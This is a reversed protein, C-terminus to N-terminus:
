WGLVEAPQRLNYFATGAVHDRFKLVFYSQGDEFRLELEFPYSGAEIDTDGPPILKPCADDGALPELYLARHGDRRWRLPLQRIVYPAYERRLVGTGGNEEGELTLTEESFKATWVGVLGQQHERFLRMLDHPALEFDNSSSLKDAKEQGSEDRFKIMFTASRNRGRGENFESGRWYGLLQSWPVYVCTDLRFIDHTRAALAERDLILGCTGGGGRRQRHLELSRPIGRGLKYLFVVMPISGLLAWAGIRWSWPGTAAALCLLFFVPVCGLDSFPMKQLVVTREDDTEVGDTLLRQYDLPLEEFRCRGIKQTM